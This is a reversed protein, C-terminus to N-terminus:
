IYIGLHLFVPTLLTFGCNCLVFPIYLTKIKREIYRSYEKGSLMKASYCYGSAMMFVAMHFLYIFERCFPWTHGYVVLIIAVGKLIDISPERTVLKFPPISNEYLKLM